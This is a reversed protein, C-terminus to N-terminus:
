RYEYRPHYSVTISLLKETKEIHLLVEAKISNNNERSKYSEECGKHM